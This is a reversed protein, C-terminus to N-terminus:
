LVRRHRARGGGGLGSRAAPARQVTAGFAGVSVGLSRAVDPNIRGLL